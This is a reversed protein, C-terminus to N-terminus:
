PKRKHQGPESALLKREDHPTKRWRKDTTSPTRPNSNEFRKQMSACPEGIGAECVDCRDFARWDMESARTMADLVDQYEHEDADTATFSIVGIQTGYADLRVSSDAAGAKLFARFKRESMRYICGYCNVLRM